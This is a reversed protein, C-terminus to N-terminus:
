GKVLVIRSGLVARFRGLAVEPVLPERCRGVVGGRGERWGGSIKHPLLDFVLIGWDVVGGSYCALWWVVSLWDCRNSSGDFGM